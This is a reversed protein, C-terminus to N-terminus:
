DSLSDASSRGGKFRIPSFSCRCSGHCAVRASHAITCNAKDAEDRHLHNPCIGSSIAVNELFGRSCMATAIMSGVGKRM